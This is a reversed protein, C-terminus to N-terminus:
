GWVYKKWFKRCKKGTGDCDDNYNDDGQEKCPGAASIEDKCAQLRRDFKTEKETLLEEKITEIESDEGCGLEPNTCICGRAGMTEGAKNCDGDVKYDVDTQGYELEGGFSTVKDGCGESRPNCECDEGSRLIRACANSDKACWFSGGFVACNALNDKQKTNLDAELVVNSENIVGMLERTRNIEERIINKM